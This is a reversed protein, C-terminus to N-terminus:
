ASKKGAIIRVSFPLTVPGVAGGLAKFVEDRIRARVDSTVQSLAGVVPAAVETMMTWYQEPSEYTVQGSYRSDTVDVLGADKVLGALMGPEACRFMGPAGAPVPPIAINRQIIEMLRGIWPNGPREGWVSTAFRGGAKLVRTMEKAAMAVDPFFMFGMRCSLADFTADPFPLASADAVQAEYNLIGRESARARATELMGEALDTGIVRGEALKAAITLGPEGTGSAVDLVVDSPRLELASIIETGVPRLFAMNFDDWKRWGPSFRNWAEKQQDRIKEQESTM